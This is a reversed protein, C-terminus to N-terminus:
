TTIYVFTELAAYTNGLLYFGCCTSFLAAAVNFLPSIVVIIFYVYLLPIMKIVYIVLFPPSCHTIYFFSFFLISINCINM